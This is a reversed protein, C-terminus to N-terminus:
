VKCKRERAVPEKNVGPFHKGTVAACNATMALTVCALRLLRCGPGAMLWRSGCVCVRLHRVLWDRLYVALGGQLRQVSCSCVSLCCCHKGATLVILRSQTHVQTPRHTQTDAQWILQGWVNRHLLGFKQSHWWSEASVASWRWISSKESAFCMEVEVQKEGEWLIAVDTCVSFFQRGNGGREKRVMLAVRAQLPCVCECACVHVCLSRFFVQHFRLPLHSLSFHLQMNLVHIFTHPCMVCVCVYTIHTSWKSRSIYSVGSLQSSGWCCWHNAGVLTHTHPRGSIDPSSAWSPPWSETCTLWSGGCQVRSDM